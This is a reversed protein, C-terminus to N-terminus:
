LEVETYFIIDGSVIQLEYVGTFTAPITLINGTIEVEYCINDSQVM